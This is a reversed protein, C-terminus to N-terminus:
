NDFKSFNHKQHDEEIYKSILPLTGKSDKMALSIGMTSVSGVVAVVAVISAMAVVFSVPRPEVELRSSEYLENATIAMSSIKHSGISSCVRMHSITLLMAIVLTVIGKKLLMAIVLTVTGKKFLMAIVLTVTGKKFHNKFHNM